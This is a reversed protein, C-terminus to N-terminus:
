GMVKIWAQERQEATATLLKFPDVKQRSIWADTIHSLEQWYDKQKEEPIMMELEHMLDLSSSFRIDVVKGDKDIWWEGGLVDGRFASKKYGLIQAIQIDIDGM